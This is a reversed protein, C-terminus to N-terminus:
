VRYLEERTWSEHRPSITLTDMLAFTDELWQASKSLVEQEILRRVLANFSINHRRAYERGAKIVKEDISLTINKM